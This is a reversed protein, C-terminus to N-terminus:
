AGATLRVSFSARYRTWLFGLVIGAGVLATLTEGVRGLWEGISDADPFGPLEIPVASSYPTGVAM